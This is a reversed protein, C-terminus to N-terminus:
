VSTTTRTLLKGVTHQAGGACLSILDIRSKGHDPTLSGTQNGVREKPWLKHQLHGFPDHSGMKPM